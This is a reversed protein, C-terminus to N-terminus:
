HPFDVCRTNDGDGGLKVKNTNTSRYLFATVGNTGRWHLMVEWMGATGKDMDRRDGPQKDRIRVCFAAVCKFKFTVPPRERTEM